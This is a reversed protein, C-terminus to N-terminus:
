GRLNNAQKEMEDATQVVRSSLQYARQAMILDTMEQSLEVNSQELSGQIVRTDTSLIPQGSNDTAMYYSGRASELGSPDVFSHIGMMGQYLVDGDQNRLYLNGDENILLDEERSGEEFIFPQGYSDLVPYGERNELRAGGNPFHSLKFNGDRTYMYEGNENALTFFGSGELAIDLSNNTGQLNGQSFYTQISGVRVGNGVLLNANSEAPRNEMVDYLTEKFDPKSSKYGITSANAINNGITDMKHQNVRMGSSASYLSRIM